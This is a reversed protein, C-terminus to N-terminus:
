LFFRLQPEEQKRWKKDPVFLSRLLKREFLNVQIIRLLRQVSWGEQAMHKAFNVLLYAILAIWIQTQIANRSRGLFSKLKLNQKIAKFFLEIKWRDKYIAAITSAALHFNNSLFEFTRKKDTDYFEIRRLLEPAGRKKAHASSLEICEDVIIGKTALVSRSSKVQYVTKPRLRTVFSVNQLTLQAFWQYDVYGKDFVIISGAPFKFARGQVMDNEIGDGLAVFEHITNSHNLGVSLKISAKSEHVKAWECLSLSLDIHSADLSYLPNKFRFKHATKSNECRQLLQTFLQQYLSAPQEENLRALTSRAIRKAGLHYLKEQQSELNSQIDRLSQRCSLQSMLIAVFQDWRTASRLKQGSHHLKALREFDQRLIPKLLQHFVTNQHSM